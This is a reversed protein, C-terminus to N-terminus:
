IIYKTYLIYLLIWMKVPTLVDITENKPKEWKADSRRDAVTLQNDYRVERIFGRSMM